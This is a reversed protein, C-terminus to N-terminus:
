DPNSDSGTSDLVWRVRRVLINPTMPKPIFEAGPEPLDKPYGSMYIVKANSHIVRFRNALEKGGMLPMVIDTLLLDIGSDGAYEEAIRNAEVGNSAELVTYGQTELVEVALSRVLPEDEVLLITEVGTPWLGDDDRRPTDNPKAEVTPLFIRFSTGEGLRSDVAIYGGSQTIIGYCTSLGLGTGEGVPKTTFFPEFMHEQVEQTMGIGTDSVTLVAYDGPPVNVNTRTHNKDFTENSTEITLRGGNPMADRANVALNLLVQEVQGSDAKVSGLDSSTATVLEIDEGILRRLMNNHDIVLGNLDLVVPVIVQRRSFALLQKTLGTARDAATKVERIYKQTRTSQSPDMSALQTYGIIATLLNNFDHAIGGALQGVAEMKQSQALQLELQKRATIDLIIARSEVLDGNDDLIRRVSLNGWVHKGESRRYEMEASTRNGGQGGTDIEAIIESAKDTEDPTDAYLDLIHNGILGDFSQAFMELAQRNAQVIMGKPDATIYAIPASQYLDRYQVESERLAEEARKRQTIDRLIATFVNEGGIELRSISAEAPFKSGDKRLGYVEANRDGMRKSSADSKAFGAMHSHHINLSELPILMDLSKGIVEASEYGFIKVAGQNFMTIRFSEDVSVVADDAIDLIGSFREESDVLATQNRQNEAYIQANAMAGAMQNAIRESFALDTQRYANNKFSQWRVTGIVHGNAILPAMLVSKVGARISHTMQPVQRMSEQINDLEYVLPKGSSAVMQTLSGALPRQYGPHLSLIEAGASYETTFTQTELDVRNATLTDFPILTGMNQAFQDYVKNIDLSSSIIVGVEAMVANEQAIKIASAESAELAKQTRQNEAYINANVIASAVYNAIREAIIRHHEDYADVDFSQWWIAVLAEGSSILPAALFARYGAEIRPALQPFEKLSEEVSNVTHLNATRGAMVAGTFSGILPTFTSTDLNPTALGVSHQATFTGSKLDALQIVLGDFPIVDRTKTAFEEYVQSLDLTSNIIQGIEAMVANEHAARTASAESAELATQTRQIEAFTQAIAIAGAIQNAVREALEMDNPSYIDSFDSQWRISGIVIGNAILPAGLFSKTGQSILPGLKPFNARSIQEDHVIHLVSKRAQQIAQTFSGTISVSGGALLSPIDDGASFETIFTQSQQDILNIALTDFPILTKVTDAFQDYIKSIDLLSGVTRGIEAMVANEHALQTASTKSVTLAKQILLNHAHIRANALAGAIQNAIQQALEVDADSYCEIDTSQWYIAGILEGSTMLPAGLFSRLGM